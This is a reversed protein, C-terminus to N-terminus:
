WENNDSSAVQPYQRDYELNIIDKFKSDLLENNDSAVQPYRNEFGLHAVSLNWTQQARPGSIWLIGFKVVIDQPIWCASM